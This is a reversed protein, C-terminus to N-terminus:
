PMVGFGRLLSYGGAVAVPFVLMWYLFPDKRLNGYITRLRPM